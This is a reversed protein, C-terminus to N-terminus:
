RRTKNVTTSLQGGNAGWHNPEDLASGAGRGCSEDGGVPTGGSPAGGAVAIGGKEGGVQRRSRRSRPSDAPQQVPM